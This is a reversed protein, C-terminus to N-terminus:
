LTLSLIRRVSNDGLSWYTKFIDLSEQVSFKSVCKMRWTAMCPPRIKRKYIENGRKYNRYAHGTNRLLEIKNIKWESSVATKRKRSKPKRKKGETTLDKKKETWEICFHAPYSLRYLSQNRAPRDPSRIGTSALNEAGTWVPGPAWGAKQVIPVPDKGPTFFPRPTVSVGWGRRTGNTM